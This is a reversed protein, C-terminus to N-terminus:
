RVVEVRQGDHVFGAGKTIVMTGAALGGIRADRDSFGFFRVQRRRAVGRADIVYVSAINGQAELLAEAPITGEDAQTAASSGSPEAAFRVSVPSGSALRQRTPGPKL